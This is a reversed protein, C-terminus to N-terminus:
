HHFCVVRVVCLVDIEWGGHNCCCNGAVAAAAVVAVDDGVRVFFAIV